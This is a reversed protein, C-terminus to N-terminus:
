GNFYAEISELSASTSWYSTLYTRKQQIQFIYLYLKPLNRSCACYNKRHKEERSSKRAVSWRWLASTTWAASWSTRAHQPLSWVSGRSTRRTMFQSRSFVCICVHLICMGCACVSTHVSVCMISMMLGPMVNLFIYDAKTSRGHCSMLSVKWPGLPNPNNLAM